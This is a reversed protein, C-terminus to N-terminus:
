VAIYLLFLVITNNKNNRESLNEIFLETKSDGADSGHCMVLRLHQVVATCSGYLQQVKGSRSSFSLAVMATLCSYSLPVM